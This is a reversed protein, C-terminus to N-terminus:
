KVKIYDTASYPSNAASKGHIAKVRYYYTRGAKVNTDTFSSATKTTKVHVYGTTKSTSRYVYYKVADPDKEWTLRPNGNKLKIKVTPRALTATASVATSSASNAVTNTHVAKVKYYYKTGLEADQDTYHTSTTSAVRTYSSEDASRRYVLYKRAGTIRKWSVYPDGSSATTNAEVEPRPLDCRLHVPSSWAESYGTETVPIVRYYYVRGASANTDTFSTATTSGQNYYWLIGNQSVARQVMYEKAHEVKDWTIKPQGSSAVNSIKLKPAEMRWHYPEYIEWHSNCVKTIDNSIARVKFFYYGPGYLGDDLIFQPPTNQTTTINTQRHFQWREGAEEIGYYMIVEYNDHSYDSNWKAKPFGNITDNEDWRLNYPCELEKSPKKYEWTGSKAVKSSAYTGTDDIAQVTFSYTGTEFNKNVYLDVSLYGSLYDPNFGNRLTDWLKGDKYVKIEFTVPEAPSFPEAAKWAVSGYRQKLETHNDTYKNWTLNAPTGLREKEAASAPNPILCLLLLLCVALGLFRPIYKKM